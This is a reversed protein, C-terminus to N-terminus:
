DTFRFRALWEGLVPRPDFSEGAAPDFVRVVYVRDGHFAVAEVGFFDPVDDCRYTNIRAPEGDVTGSESRELPCQPFLADNARDYDALWQEQDTGPPVVQSTFLIWPEEEISQDAFDLGPSEESFATGPAWEGRREIISWSEDPLLLSYEHRESTFVPSAPTPTPTPIPGPGGVNSPLFRLGLFAAAMVAAAAIGFRFRNSNMIPFRRALWGARRQPTTDLQNLVTFLLREADEHGDERLWSRVVRTLQPDTKM